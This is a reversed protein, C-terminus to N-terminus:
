PGWPHVWTDQVVLGVLVVQDHLGGLWWSSSLQWSGQVVQLHLVVQGELAVLFDWGQVVLAGLLGQAVWGGGQLVLVVQVVLVGLDTLDWLNCLIHLPVDWIPGELM